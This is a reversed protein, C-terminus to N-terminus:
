WDVIIQSPGKASPLPPRPDLETIIMDFETIIMDFEAIIMDFETIIM